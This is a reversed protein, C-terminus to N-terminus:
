YFYIFRLQNMDVYECAGDAQNVKVIPGQKWSSCASLDSTDTSSTIVGWTLGSGTGVAWNSWGVTETKAMLLFGGGPIKNRDLKIAAFNGSSIPQWALLFSSTSIPDVPLSWMGANKLDASINNVGTAMSMGDPFKWFDGQYLILASAIQSLGTQRSVDRARAQASQLRPLLAAILIGIIVIVILMEVLTFAKLNKQKM